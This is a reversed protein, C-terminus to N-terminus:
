AEPDPDRIDCGYHSALLTALASAQDADGDADVAVWAPPATAHRSWVGNPRTIESFADALSADQPPAVTTCHKGDMVTGQDPGPDNDIAAHNGLYITFAV